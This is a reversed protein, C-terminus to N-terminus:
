PGTMTVPTKALNKRLLGAGKERKPTQMEGGRVNKKKAVAKKGTVVDEEETNEVVPTPLADEVVDFTDLDSNYCADNDRLLQSAHKLPVCPRKESRCWETRLKKWSWATLKRRIKKLEPVQASVDLISALCVLVQCCTEDLLLSATKGLLSKQLVECMSSEEPPVSCKSVISLNKEINLRVNSSLDFLYRKGSAIHQQSETVLSAISVNNRMRAYPSNKLADTAAGSFYDAFYDCLDRTFLQMRKVARNLEEKASWYDVSPNFEKIEGALQSRMDNLGEMDECIDEPTYEGM